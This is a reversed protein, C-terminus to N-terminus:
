VSGNYFVKSVVAGGGVATAGYTPTLSDSVYCTDGVVAPTPLTGVTYGQLRVVRTSIVDSATFTTNASDDALRASLGASVRKIAPFSSTTGGFQFLNFDNGANNMVTFNNNTVSQLQSKGSIEFRTAIVIGSFTGGAATLNANASDDALRVVIGTGSRQISPFSSTTGGFQLRNFDSILHDTILLVGSSPAELVTSNSWRLRSTIGATIGGTITMSGSSNLNFGETLTGNRMLSLSYTADETADVADSWTISQTGAVRNTGSANELEYEQGVGFGVAATGSTIHSLRQAFTVANTVADSAEVHFLRDPSTTGAGVNGNASVKFGSGGGSNGAAYFVSGIGTAATAVILGQGSGSTNFVRTLYDSAVTGSVDLKHSPTIAGIGVFGSNLVTM